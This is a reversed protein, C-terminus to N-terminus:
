DFLVRLGLHAAAVNSIRNYYLYPSPYGSSTLWTRAEAYLFIGGGLPQEAGAAADFSLRRVRGSGAISYQPVAYRATDVLTSYSNELKMTILGFGGSGYISYSDENNYAGKFYHRLGVSLHGYTLKTEAAYQVSPPAANNRKSYAIFGNAFRGPLYYNFYAYGTWKPSFHLQSGISQGVTTFRQLRGLNRLGGVDTFISFNYQAM